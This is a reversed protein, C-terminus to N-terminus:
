PRSSQFKWNDRRLRAAISRISELLSIMTLVLVILTAVALMIRQTGDQWRDTILIKACYVTAYGFLPTMVMWFITLVYWRSKPAKM